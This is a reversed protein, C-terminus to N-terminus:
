KNLPILASVLSFMILVISGIAQSFLDPGLLQGGTTVYAWVIFAVTSIILHNRKPRNPEAVNNLYLPTLVLCAGFIVWNVIKQTEVGSISGVFGMMTLYGALVEAPILRSVKELYDSISKGGANNGGSGGGSEDTLSKVQSPAPQDYYLRAM